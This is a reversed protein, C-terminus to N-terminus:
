QKQMLYDITLEAINMLRGRSRDFSDEIVAGTYTHKIDHSSYMLPEIHQNKDLIAHAHNMTPQSLLTDIDALLETIASQIAGFQHSVATLEAQNDSYLTGIVVARDGIRELQMAVNCYYNLEITNGESRGSLVQTFRREIGYVLKNVEQDRLVVDRALDNDGLEIARLADEIMSRCIAYARRINDAVPFLSDDVVNHAVISQSSEELIEFGFLQQVTQRISANQEATIRQATLVIRDAGAIYAAIIERLAQAASKGDLAIIIESQRYTRHDPKIVLATGTESVLVQDKSKLKWRQLWSKPLTLTLSSGGTAQLRRKEM